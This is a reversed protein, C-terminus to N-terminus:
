FTIRFSELSLALSCFRFDTFVLFETILGYNQTASVEPSPSWYGTHPEHICNSLPLVEIEQDGAHGIRKMVALRLHKKYSLMGIKSTM